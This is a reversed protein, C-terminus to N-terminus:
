APLLCFDYLIMVIFINVINSLAFGLVPFILPKFKAVTLCVVTWINLQWEFLHYTNLWSRRYVARVPLPQTYLTYIAYQTSSNFEQVYSHLGLSGVSNCVCCPSHGKVIVLSAGGGTLPLAGHLYFLLRWGMSHLIQDHAGPLARCWFLCAPQGGTAIHSVIVVLIVRKVSTCRRVASHAWSAWWTTSRKAPLWCDDTMMRQVSTCCSGVWPGDATCQRRAWGPFCLVTCEGCCDRWRGGCRPLLARYM